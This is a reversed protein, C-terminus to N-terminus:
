IETRALIAKEEAVKRDEAKSLWKDAPVYVHSFIEDCGCRFCIHQIAAKENGMTRVFKINCSKGNTGADGKFGCAPCTIKEPDYLRVRVKM